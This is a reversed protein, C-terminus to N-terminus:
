TKQFWLGSECTVLKGEYLTGEVQGLQHQQRHYWVKYTLEDLPKQPYRGRVHVVNGEQIVAWAQKCNQTLKYHLQMAAEAYNGFQDAEMVDQNGALEFPVRCWGKSLNQQVQQELLIRNEQCAQHLASQYAEYYESGIEPLINELSDCILEIHEFRGVPLDTEWGVMTLGTATDRRLVLQRPNAKFIM